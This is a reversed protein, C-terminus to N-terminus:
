VYSMFDKISLYIPKISFIIEVIYPNSFKVAFVTVSVFVCACM